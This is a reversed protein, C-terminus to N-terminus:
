AAAQINVTNGITCDLIIDDMSAITTVLIIVRFQGLSIPSVGGPPAVNGSVGDVFFGAIRQSNLNSPSLLGLLFQRITGVISQRRQLTMLQKVYPDMATALSDEIYDAMRRRSIPALAPYSAPNVSTVGSQFIMTGVGGGTLRPACIGAAKLSIYDALQFPVGGNYNPEIGVVNGTFSTLQGPNEEPNLQSCISAMVGDAGVTVIGNATFGTGGAIGVTGISPVFMTVQPYCYVIRQYSYAGVGPEAVTSEAGAELTGIPPRIIAIRGLVGAGGGDGATQVNVLLQRRVTDSQRASWIINIDHSPDESNLTNSIATTYAADIAAESLAAAVVQLNYVAFSDLTIVTTSSVKTVDGVLSTTAVSNDDQAPRVVVPYPGAGSASTGTIATATVTIDQMTVYSIGSNVGSVVTGAPIIGANGTSAADTTGTPFGFTVTSSASVELTDTAPASSIRYMRLQGSPLQEVFVTNTTASAIKTNIESPLAANFNAFPGTGNTTGVTLGLDTLATGSVVRVNGGTGVQLGTLKLQSSSNSVFTFGAAANIRAIVAAITTDTSQFTVTFNPAGDYGLVATLGATISAFSAGSGTVTGATGTFTVTTTGADTIIVIDQASTVQYAFQRGGLLNAQRTFQVSGVSTNVRMIMLRSFKKGGVQIAGNGNWYEALVAGDAFRQRACPNQGVQGNYTYGFAGFQQKLQTYSTVETTADFPGNEFEGVICTTGSGVGIITEPPERDLIDVGEIQGLVTSGPDFTWRRTFGVGL